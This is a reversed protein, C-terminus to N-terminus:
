ENSKKVLQIILRHFDEDDIKLTVEDGEQIGVAEVWGSPLIVHYKGNCHVLRRKKM